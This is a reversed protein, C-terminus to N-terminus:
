HKPQDKIWPRGHGFEGQCLCDASVCWGEPDVQIPGCSECLVVCAENNHWGEVTTLGAFDGTADRDGNLEITCM